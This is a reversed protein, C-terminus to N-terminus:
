VNNEDLRRVKRLENVLKRSRCQGFANQQKIFGKKREKQWSNLIFFDNLNICQEGVVMGNQCSPKNTM